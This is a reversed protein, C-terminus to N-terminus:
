SDQAVNTDDEIGNDALPIRLHFTTGKGPRSDVAVSGGMERITERIQHAGIGMGQAGKTSDFPRFLRDRVFEVDMGAGTDAIAISCYDDDISMTVDVQGDAPTADQANSIAHTIAMRLREEDGIVTARADCPSASPEPSRDACRSTPILVVRGVDIRNHQGVKTGQQLQNIVNRIREASGRVTDIVDDVFEPNRKHKEANDVVLM